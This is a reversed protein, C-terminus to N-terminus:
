EAIGALERIMVINEINKGFDIQTLCLKPRSEIQYEFINDSASSIKIAIREEWSKWTIGSNLRLIDDNSKLKMQSMVAHDSIRSLFEEKSVKSVFEASQTSKLDAESPELIGQDNLNSVHMSVLTLSMIGGFFITHFLIKGVSFVGDDIYGTIAMASSYFLGTFLFVKIYLKEIPKM